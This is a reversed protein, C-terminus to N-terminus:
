GPPCLESQSPTLEPAAEREKVLLFNQFRPPPHFTPPCGVAAASSPKTLHVECRSGPAKCPQKYGQDGVVLCM